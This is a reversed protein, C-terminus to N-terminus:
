AVVELPRRSSVGVSAELRGVLESARQAADWVTAQVRGLDDTTPSVSLTEVRCGMYIRLWDVLYPLHYDQAENGSGPSYDGGSSTVVIAPRRPLLSRYGEDPTWTFSLRPQTVVDIYHKLVYPVGFNWMPAALLVLDAARFRDVVAAVESWAAEQTASLSRGAFVAYKAELTAGSMEPLKEAWLNLHDVTRASDRALLETIITDALNSTYSREGKPPRSSSCCIRCSRIEMVM